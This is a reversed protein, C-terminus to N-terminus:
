NPLYTHKTLVRNDMSVKVYLSRKAQSVMKELENFAERSFSTSFNGCSLHINECRGCLTIEGISSESLVLNEM